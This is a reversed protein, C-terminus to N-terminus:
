RRVARQLGLVALTGAYALGARAPRSRVRRGVERMTIGAGAAIALDPMRAQGMEFGSVRAADLAARAQVVTIAGGPRGRLALAAAAAAARYAGVEEVLPALAPLRQALETAEDPELRGVLRRLTEDVDPSGDPLPPVANLAGVHPLTGFAYRDDGRLLSLAFPRRARALARVADRSLGCGVVAVCGRLQEPGAAALPALARRDGGAALLARAFADVVVGRGVLALPRPRAADPERLLGGLAIATRRDV